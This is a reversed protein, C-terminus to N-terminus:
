LLTQFSSESLFPTLCHDWGVVAWEFSRAGLELISSLVAVLSYPETILSARCPMPLGVRLRVEDSRWRHITRGWCQDLSTGVSPNGRLAGSVEDPACPSQFSLGISNPGGLRQFGEGCTWSSREGLALCARVVDSMREGAEVKVLRGRAM